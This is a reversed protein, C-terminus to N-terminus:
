WVNICTYTAVHVMSSQPEATVRGGGGGWVCLVCCVCTYVPPFVPYHPQWVPLELDQKMQPSQHYHHSHLYSHTRTHMPSLLLFTLLKERQGDMRRKGVVRRGERGEERERERRGESSTTSFEADMCSDENGEVGLVEGECEIGMAGMVELDSCVSPAVPPGVCFCTCGVM